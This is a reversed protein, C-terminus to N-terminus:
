QGDGGASYMSEDRGTWATGGHYTIQRRRRPELHGSLVRHVDAIIVRGDTAMAARRAGHVWRTRLKDGHPVSHTLSTLLKTCARSERSGVAVSLVIGAMTTTQHFLADAVSLLEAFRAPIHCHCSRSTVVIPVTHDNHAKPTAGAWQSAHWVVRCMAVWLIRRLHFDKIKQCPLLRTINSNFNPTFFASSMTWQKM